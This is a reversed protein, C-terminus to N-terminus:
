AEWVHYPGRFYTHTKNTPWIYIVSDVWVCVLVWPAVKAPMGNQLHSVAHEKILPLAEYNLINIYSLM